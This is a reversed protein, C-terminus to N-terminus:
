KQFAKDVEFIAPGLYRIIDSAIFSQKAMTAIALDATRGHLFVGVIAADAPAYGQSLLGTIIGTLVDGSGATALASNGSSNEFIDEASFINTPAGKSVVIVNYRRCFDVILQNKEADSRWAGLLRELEKPHPTLISNEPLLTLWSRNEALINIADADVVLPTGITQLFNHLAQQTQVDRGLGPGVGIAQPEFEITVDTIIKEHIDTLVMAEPLLTQMITYGCAPIFATVLGCGSRLAAKACLGAAGIKGYSGGIILAHGQTGKHADPAVPRYRSLIDDLQIIQM